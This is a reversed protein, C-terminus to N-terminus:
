KLLTMQRTEEFEEGIKLRYFYTGSAVVSGQGNLGDWIVEHRAADMKQDLLTVVEQGLVNYVVLKVHSAAPMSFNIKTQANFPNPLNQDLGYVLPTIGAHDDGVATGWSISGPEWDPIQDQALVDTFALHQGGAGCTDCAVVDPTANGKLKFHLYLLTDNTAPFSAFSIFGCLINDATLNPLATKITWGSNRGAPGYTVSKIDPPTTVLTDLDLDASGPYCVPFAIAGLVTKNNIMVPWKISTDATPVPSPIGISSPELWIFDSDSLPQAWAGSSLALVVLVGLVFWKGLRM